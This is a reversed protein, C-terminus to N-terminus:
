RKSRKNWWATKGSSNLNIAHMNMSITLQSNWEFVKLCLFPDNSLKSTCGTTLNPFKRVKGQFKWRVNCQNLIKYVWTSRSNHRDKLMTLTTFELIVRYSQCIPPSLFCTICVSNQTLLDRKFGGNWLGLILHSSLMLVVSSTSIATVSQIRIRSSSPEFSKPSMPEVSQRKWSTGRNRGVLAPITWPNLDHDSEQSNKGIWWERM